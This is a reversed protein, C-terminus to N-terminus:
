ALHWDGPTMAVPMGSPTPAESGPVKGMTSTDVRKAPPEVQEPMDGVHPTKLEQCAKPRLAIDPHGMKDHM